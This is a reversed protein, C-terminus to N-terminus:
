CRLRVDTPSATPVSHATLCRQPAPRQSRTEPHQHIRIAPWQPRSSISIQCSASRQGSPARASASRVHHQDSAVRPALQHQDSMRDRSLPLQPRRACIAFSASQLSDSPHLPDPEARAGHQLHVVSLHDPPPPTPTSSTTTILVLTTVPEDDLPSASSEPPSYSIDIIM